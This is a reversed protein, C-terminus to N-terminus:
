TQLCIITTNQMTHLSNQISWRLHKKIDFFEDTPETIYINKNFEIGILFPKDVMFNLGTTETDYVITNPQEDKLLKEIEGLHKIRKYSFKQHLFM